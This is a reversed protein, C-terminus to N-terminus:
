EDTDDRELGARWDHTPERLTLSHLGAFGTLVLLVVWVLNGGLINQYISAAFLANGLAPSLGQPLIMSMQAIGTLLSLAEPSPSADNVLSGVCVWCFSAISWVTYFVLQSALFVISENGAPQTRVIWNLIPFGLVVPPWLFMAFRYVDLTKVRSIVQNYSLMMVIHIFSRIAMQTGIKAESMGLGGSAIPTFAFLPYISFLTESVFCMLANNFLLSLISPTMVSCWTGPTKKKIDEIDDVKYSFLPATEDMTEVLTVTSSATSNTSGYSATRRATKRCKKRKSPLTEELLIVAPAIAILGLVAGVLCPLLYPYGTWFPTDFMTFRQEPHALLGGLPLGVLQGVRYMIQLSSYALDQNSRDTIEGTMVKIAAWSAGLAGGICRSAIMTMLSRSLGFAVMSVVLGAMGLLIVPKRGYTDSLYGCPLIMIFGTLSFVSEVLGSYFGVQEPDNTVGIEVVMANVFPYVLEFALPTISSLMLLISFKTMPLPTPTPPPLKISAAPSGVVTSAGTPTSVMDSDQEEHMEHLFEIGLTLPQEEPLFGAHAAAM